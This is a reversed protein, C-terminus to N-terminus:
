FAHRVGIKAEGVSFMVGSKSYKKFDALKLNSGNCVLRTNATFRFVGHLMGDDTGSKARMAAPLQFPFRAHTGESLACFDVKELAFVAVVNMREFLVM